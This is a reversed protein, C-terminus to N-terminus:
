QRLLWTIRDYSILYHILVIGAFLGALTVFNSKYIFWVGAGFVVIEIALRLYGPVAVVTKGSRSPDNPVAFCGWIVAILVPLGIVLIYKKWDTQSMWVWYGSSFLVIMELLFRLGLNIPHSGM